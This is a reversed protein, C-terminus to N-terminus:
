ATRKEEKGRPTEIEELQRSPATAPEIFIYEEQSPTESAHRRGIM